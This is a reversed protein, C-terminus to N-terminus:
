YQIFKGCLELNIGAFVGLNIGVDLTRNKYKV